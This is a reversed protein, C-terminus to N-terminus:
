SLKTFEVFFWLCIGDYYKVMIMDSFRFYIVPFDSVCLKISKLLMECV